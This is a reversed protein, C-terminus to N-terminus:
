RSQARKVALPVRAPGIFEPKTRSEGLELDIFSDSRDNEDEDETFLKIIECVAFALCAMLLASLLLVFLIKGTTWSKGQVPTQRTAKTSRKDPPPTYVRFMEKWNIKNSDMLFEKEFDLVHKFWAQYPSLPSAALRGLGNTLGEFGAWTKRGEHLGLVTYAGM